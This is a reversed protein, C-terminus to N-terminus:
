QRIKRARGNIRAPSMAPALFLGARGPQGMGSVYTSLDTENDRMTIRHGGKVM